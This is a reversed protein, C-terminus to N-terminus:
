QKNPSASQCWTGALLPAYAGSRLRDFFRGTQFQVLCATFHATSIILELGGRMTMPRKCATSLVRGDRFVKKGIHPTKYASDAMITKIEPFTQTVKEYVDDLAVSDRVNGSTVVTELVYGNKGCPLIRRM